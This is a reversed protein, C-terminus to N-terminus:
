RNKKEFRGCLQSEFSWMGMSRQLAVAQDGPSFNRPACRIRSIRLPIVCVIRIRISYLDYLHV